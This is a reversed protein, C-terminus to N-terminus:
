CALDPVFGDATPVQELRMVATGQLPLSLFGFKAGLFPILNYSSRVVAEVRGGVEEGDPTAICVSLPAEVSGTGDRLEVTDAKSAIYQQLSLPAGPNHNVAAFRAGTAALHNTDNWYNFARGFDLVGLVLVLLLPLVLAFEVLATGRDDRIHNPITLHPLSHAVFPTDPTFSDLATTRENVWQAPGREPARCPTSKM